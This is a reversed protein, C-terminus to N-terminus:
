CAQGHVALPDPSEGGLLEAQLGRRVAKRARLCLVDRGDLSDTEGADDLRHHARRSLSLTGDLFDAIDLSRPRDRELPCPAGLTPHDDFAEDVEVVLDGQQRDAVDAAGAKARRHTMTLDIAVVVLAPLRLRHAVRRPSASLL